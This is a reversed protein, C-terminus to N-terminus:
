SLFGALSCNIVSFSIKWPHRGAAVTAFSTLFTQSFNNNKAASDYNAMDDKNISVSVGLLFPSDNLLLQMELLDPNRAFCVYRLRKDLM